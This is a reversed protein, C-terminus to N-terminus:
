QGEGPPISNDPIPPPTLTNLDIKAPPNPDKYVQECLFLGRGGGVHYEYVKGAVQLIILAGDQPVQKYKMGPQPCGLSADPWLVEGVDVVLEEPGLVRACTLNAARAQPQRDRALDDLRMLPANFHFTLGPRSRGERHEQRQGVDLTMLPVPLM